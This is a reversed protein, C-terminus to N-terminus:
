RGADENNLGAILWMVLAFCALAFLGILVSVIIDLLNIAIPEIVSM